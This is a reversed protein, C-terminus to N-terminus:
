TNDNKNDKSMCDCIRCCMYLPEVKYKITYPYGETPLNMKGSKVTGGGWNYWKDVPYESGDVGVYHTPTSKKHRILSCGRIDKLWSEVSEKTETELQAKLGQRLKELDLTVRRNNRDVWVRNAHRQKRRERYNVFTEM